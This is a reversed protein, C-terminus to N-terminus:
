PAGLCAMGLRVSGVGWEQGESSLGLGASVHAAPIVLESTILKSLWIDQLRLM